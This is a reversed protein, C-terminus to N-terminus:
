AHPKTFGDRPTFFGDPLTISTGELASMFTPIHGTPSFHGVIRGNQFDTQVYEFVPQVNITGAEMGVVESITLMRRGGDRLKHQSLVVDIGAAIQERLALLPSSPSAELARMEVRLLADRVSNAHITMLSGDYGTNLATLMIGVEDGMIENVIIRDPRMKTASDVLHRVRIEGKGELNAPRAELRILHPKDIHMQSVQECVVIRDDSPIMNALVNLITTKGSGTGGAILINLRAEVCAQLFTVMDQNLSQYEVLMEATLPRRLFKRITVSPGDLAIPRGVVHVLSGDELRLDLIPNSENLERGWPEAIQKILALLETETRFAADTKQIQGRKEVYINEHGNIMIEMVEPDSLLSELPGFM